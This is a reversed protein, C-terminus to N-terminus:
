MMQRLRAIRDEVPPHTSFFRSANKFPNSIYLHATARNAHKLPTNSASIKQLASILGDPHRTLAVGSADALYERTRSIALQIFQAILPSLLGLVIGILFAIAGANGRDDSSSRRMPMRILIDSLLVILGVLVVVITMVRIDYNKIHSMEHAVVGELETKDLRRLLGTTFAVSSHKPDRGTAFANPSDDEIVYVRPMPLGATIAVNEVLRYLEPAQAKNVEKAGASMLAVKDSAFYSIMSYVFTIAFGLFAATAPPLDLAGVGLAWTLALAIASFLVLLLMTRRKNSAIQAYFDGQMHLFLTAFVTM